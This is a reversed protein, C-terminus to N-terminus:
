RRERLRLHDRAYAELLETTSEAQSGHFSRATVAAFDDIADRLMGARLQVGAPMDDKMGREAFPLLMPAVAALSFRADTEAFYYAAPFSVLDREVAVLRSTLESYLREAARPALQEVGVGTDREAALLLSFEYALSRRRLLM